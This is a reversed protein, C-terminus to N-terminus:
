GYYMGLHRFPLRAAKLHCHDCPQAPELGTKPVVFIYFCFKKILKTNIQKSFIKVMHKMALCIMINHFLRNQIPEAKYIFILFIKIKSVFTGFDVHECSLCQSIFPNIRM